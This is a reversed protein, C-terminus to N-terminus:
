RPLSNPGTATVLRQPVWDNVHHFGAGFPGGDLEVSARLSTSLVERAHLGRVPYLRSRAHQELQPFLAGRAQCLLRGFHSGLHLLSVNTELRSAARRSRSPRCTSGPNGNDTGAAFAAYYRRSPWRWWAAWRRVTLPSGGATQRSTAAGAAPGTAM